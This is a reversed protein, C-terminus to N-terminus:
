KKRRLLLGGLALLTLSAPEPVTDPVLIKYLENGDADVAAGSYDNPNAVEVGLDTNYAFNWLGGTVGDKAYFDGWMPARFSDFGVMVHDGDLNVKLGFITEGAPFGPNEKGPGYVGIEPPAGLDFDGTFNFVDGSQINESLSIIFHSTEKELPSGDAKSFAYEYHWVGGNQSITWTVRYGGETPSWGDDGSYLGQPTNLFGEILAANAAGMCFVVAVVVFLVKRM